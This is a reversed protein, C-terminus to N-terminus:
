EQGFFRIEPMEPLRGYKVLLRFFLELGKLHDEGLDYSMCRWYDVLKKEDMWLRESSHSALEHLSAFAKRRSDSLQDLLRRIEDPKNLASERRLIWLAFVFPLGTFRYWLEGLDFIHRSISPNMAAKLARDGILLGTGGEAIISELSSSQPVHFDVEETQIFERLLVYLLNVSTASEGTLSIKEGALDELSRSSFLLVSQVPGRSSISQGPLLLYQRWGRAYEFSSSPSVDIEGDALLRNLESPVGPVIRGSFGSQGLFHFFPACNAYTIHGVSLNM